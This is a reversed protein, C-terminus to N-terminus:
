RNIGAKKNVQVAELKSFGGRSIMAVTADRRVLVFV